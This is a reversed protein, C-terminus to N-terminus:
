AAIDTAPPLSARQLRQAREELERALDELARIDDRNTLGGALMRCKQAQAHLQTAEIM